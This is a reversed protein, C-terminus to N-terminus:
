KGKFNPTRKELFSAVAEKHDETKSAQSMLEGELDNFSDMEPYFMHAFMKKQSAIALTPAKALKHALKYAEDLIADDPVVDYAIGYSQATQADISENLMFHRKTNYTGIAQQLTYMLLTDGPYAMNIFATVIKSHEGMIVFDSALAIGAGAGAAFGNIAAVIPKNNQVLSKVMAGTLLIDEKSVGKGEDIMQKFFRVDGGASFIKGAGTLVIAKVEPDESAKNMIEVIEGYSEKSFANGYEVRNITVTAVHDKVEYLITEGM